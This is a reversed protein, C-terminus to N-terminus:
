RRPPRGGGGGAVTITLEATNGACSGADCGGDFTVNPVTFTIL